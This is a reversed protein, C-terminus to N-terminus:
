FPMVNSSEYRSRKNRTSGRIIPTCCSNFFIFGGISFLVGIYFISGLIVYGKSELNIKEVMFIVDRCDRDLHPLFVTYYWTGMSVTATLITLLVLYYFTGHTENTLLFPDLHPQCRTIVRWICLPMLFFYFGMALLLLLYIDLPQFVSYAIGIVLSISAAASSFLSVFRLDSLYGESIYEIILTGLWQTYFAARVGVGYTDPRGSLSCLGQTTTDM